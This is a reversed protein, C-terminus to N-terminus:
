RSSSKTRARRRTPFNMLELQRDGTFVVGRMTEEVLNIVQGSALM